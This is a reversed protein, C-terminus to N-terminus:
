FHVNGRFVVGILVLFALAGLVIGASALPVGAANQIDM